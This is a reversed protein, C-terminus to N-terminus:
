TLYLISKRIVSQHSKLVKVVYLNKTQSKVETNSFAISVTDIAYFKLGDEVVPLTKVLDM